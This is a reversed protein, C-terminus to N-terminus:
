ATSVTMATRRRLIARARFSRAVTGMEQLMTQFVQGRDQGLRLAAAVAIKHLTSSAQTEWAGTSEMVLPKFAVGQSACDQLTNLHDAKTVAYASASALAQQSAAALSEARQPATIAIDFATPSSAFSPVYIDAPRRRSILEGPRHPLLLGAREKEPKLGALDLWWALRDRVANHRQTREGGAVCVAAHYSFQDMVADCKPCWGDAAGDAVGLRQGLETVFIAPEMQTLGRPVATLFARAGPECESLLVARAVVTAAHQQSRFSAQDLKSSLGKQPHALAEDLSLAAGAGLQQNYALLAPAAHSDTIANYRADLEGCMQASGGVSALYAAASDRATSRLALGGLALGRAAQEWQAFDLHLGTLAAFCGRVQRDFDQLATLHMASPPTCRLSHVMKSYAAASRLLRLGIQPDDLESIQDLLPGALKARAATHAACFMDDGIPAGLLTFNRAVRDGGASDLLLSRPFHGHTASPSTQGVAVLECKDFNLQLGLTGARQHLVSLASSVAGIDGALFGDDLYFVALDVQGRAEQALSQIAASFLLPGLPDGQQVGGTSPLGTKGFCLRSADGYCWCAWRSLGPFHDHAAQLVAQRSITNFANSFDFKVLVKGSCNAHRQVWGRVSHVAVEAGLPVCVGVQAPWFFTRADARIQQLICKGVLRRYIEGIAIPRVGGNPKPVAVLAAGALIPAAAACGQGQALLNVVATLQQLFSNEDGVPMADLLHQARLGTPGPSTGAPFSRLSKLVAECGIEPALPLEALPPTTPVPQAPHLVQLAQLTAPSDACLGNSQLAACAKSDWGERALAVALDRRQENTRPKHKPGRKPVHRSHWLAAREGEHWRQLRDLTYAALAKKHKKGGRPPADLVTQPLM